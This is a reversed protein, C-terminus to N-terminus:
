RMLFPNLRYGRPAAKRDFRDRQDQWVPAVHGASQMSDLAAVFQDPSLKGRLAQQLGRRSIEANEGNKACEERMKESILRAAEAVPVYNAGFLHYAHRAHDIFYDKLLTWARYMTEGSIPMTWWKEYEANEAAHLLGALRRLSGELKMSFSLMGKLDGVKRRHEFEDFAAEYVSLAGDSFFLTHTGHDEGDAYPMSFITEMRRNYVDQDTQFGPPTKPLAERIPIGQPFSFLFRGIFGRQELVNYGGLSRLVVPQPAILINLMARDLKLYKMDIARRNFRIPAGSYAELLCEFDAAEKEKGLIFNLFSAETDIISMFGGHGNKAMAEALSAPTISKSWLQPINPPRCEEVESQLKEITEELRKYAAENEDSFNNGHERRQKEVARQERLADKLEDELMKKKQEFTKGAKRAEAELRACNKDVAYMLQMFVGTKREGTAMSPMLWLCCPDKHHNLCTQLKPVTAVALVGLWTVAVLDVPTQSLHAVGSIYNRAWHPLATLPFEPLATTDLSDLPAPREWEIGDSVRLMAPEFPEVRGLFHQLSELGLDLVLNNVDYKSPISADWEAIGVPVRERYLIDATEHASKEGTEDADYAVIVLSPKGTVLRHIVEQSPAKEGDQLCFARYGAALCALAKEEGGALVIPAGEIDDLGGHPFWGIDGKSKASGCEPCPTKEDSTKQFAAGCDLCTVLGSPSCAIDRKRRNNRAVTKFKTLSRGSPLEYGYAIAAGGAPGPFKALKCKGREVFDLRWDLGYQRALDEHNKPSSPANNARRRKRPKFQTLSPGTSRRPTAGDQIGLDSAMRTIIEGKQTIAIGYRHAALAILGGGDGKSHDAWCGDPKIKFGKSDAGPRFWDPANGRFWDGERKWDSLNIGWKALLEESHREIQPWLSNM